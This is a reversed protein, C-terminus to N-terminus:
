RGEDDDVPASREAHVSAQPGRRIWQSIAWSDSAHSIHEPAPAVVVALQGTALRADMRDRHTLM